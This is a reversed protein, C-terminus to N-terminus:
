PLHSFFCSICLCKVLRWIETVHRKGDYSALDYILINHDAHHQVLTYPLSLRKRDSSQNDGSVYFKGNLLWLNKISCIHQMHKLPCQMSSPPPVCEMDHNHHLTLPETVGSHHSSKQTFQNWQQLDETTDIMMHQTGGEGGEGAAAQAGGRADLASESDSRAGRAGAERALGGGGGMARAARAKLHAKLLGGGVGCGHQVARQGGEGGRGGELAAYVEGEWEVGDEVGPM